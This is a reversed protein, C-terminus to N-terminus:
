MSFVSERSDKKDEMTIWVNQRSDNQGLQLPNM